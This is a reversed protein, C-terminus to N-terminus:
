TKANKKEKIIDYFKFYFYFVLIAVFAGIGWGALVDTVYHVGFYIRTLGIIIPITPLCIKLITSLKSAKIILLAVLLISIYFAMNNQAHGSPFSSEDVFLVKFDPRPRNIILKLTINVIRSVIVSIVVPLGFTFFHKKTIATIILIVAAITIIGVASGLETIVRFPVDFTPSLLRLADFVTKELQYFKDGSVTVYVGLFLPILLFLSWFNFKKM